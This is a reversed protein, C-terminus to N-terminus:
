ADVMAPGTILAAPDLLLVAADDHDFMGRGVRAWGDGLRTRTPRPAEAVSVVDEVLDVLLGYLHGEVTVVVAEAPMMGRPRPELGLAALPDIITLTRSRLAALGYIHLPALPVPTIADIEVVSQVVDAPLAVRQGAIQAILFLSEM